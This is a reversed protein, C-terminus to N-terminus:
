KSYCDVIVLKGLPDVILGEVDRSTGAFYVLNWLPIWPLEDFAIEQAERFIEFREDKDMINRGMVVLEDVRSNNYGAMNAYRGSCLQSEFHQSIDMQSSSVTGSCFDFLKSREDPSLGVTAVMRSWFTGGEYVEIQVDVGIKKWQSQITELAEKQLEYRGEGMWLIFPREFGEPYGAEALFEKAKTLNLEYTGVRAYGWVGFPAMTEAAMANGGYISDIIAQRDIAYMLAKRVRLDDLPPKDLNIYLTYLAGTLKGEINLGLDELRNVEYFPVGGVVDVDGRILAAIRTSAEPYFVWVIKDMKAPEGWYDEFKELVIREGAVWEVLKFKNTGCFNHGFEAGLEKIHYPCQFAFLPYALLNFLPAIVKELNLQVTYDDIVKWNTYNLPKFSAAAQSGRFQPDMTGFYKELFVMFSTSNFIEGCHFKVGRRLHFTWTLDDPSVEWSEFLCPEIIKYAKDWKVLTEGLNNSVMSNSDATSVILDLTSPEMTVAVTLVKQKPLPILFMYWYSTVAAVLILVVGIVVM